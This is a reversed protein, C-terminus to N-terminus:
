SIIMHGKQTKNWGKIMTTWRVINRISEAKIIRKRGLSMWRGANEIREILTIFRELRWDTVLDPSFQSNNQQSCFGSVCIQNGIMTQDKGAQSWLTQASKVILNLYSPFIQM